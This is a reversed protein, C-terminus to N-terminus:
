CPLCQVFHAIPIEFRTVLDEKLSPIGKVPLNEEISLIVPCLTIGHHDASVSATVPGNDVRNAVPCSNVDAIGPMNFNAIKFDM